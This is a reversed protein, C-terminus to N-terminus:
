LYTVTQRWCRSRIGYEVNVILNFWRSLNVRITQKTACTAFFNLYKFDSSSICCRYCSFICKHLLFGFKTSSSMFVSNNNNNNTTSTQQQHKQAVGFAVQIIQQFIKKRFLIEASPNVFFLLLFLFEVFCLVQLCFFSKRENKRRLLLLM